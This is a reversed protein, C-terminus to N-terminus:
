EEVFKRGNAKLVHEAVMSGPSGALWQELSSDEFKPARFIELMEVEDEDSLNEM